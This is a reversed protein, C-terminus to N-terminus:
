AADEEDVLIVFLSRGLERVTDALQARTALFAELPMTVMLAQSPDADELELLQTLTGRQLIRKMDVPVLPYSTGVPIRAAKAAKKKAKAKPTPHRREQEEVFRSAVDADEADPERGAMIADTVRKVAGQVFPPPYDTVIRRGDPLTMSITRPRTM